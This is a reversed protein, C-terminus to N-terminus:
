PGLTAGADGGASTSTLVTAARGYRLAADKSEQLQQSQLLQTQDPMAPPPAPAPKKELYGVIGTQRGIWDGARDFRKTFQQFHESFVGM